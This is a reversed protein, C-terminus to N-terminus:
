ARSVIARNVAATVTCIYDQDLSSLADVESGATGIRVAYYIKVSDMKWRGLMIFLAAVAWMPPLVYWYLAVAAVLGAALVLLAFVYAVTVDSTDPEIARSSVSTINALAYTRGRIQVRKDSVFVEANEFFITEGSLGRKPQQPAPTVTPPPAAWADPPPPTGHPIGPVIDATGCKPCKVKQGIYQDPVTATHGCGACTLVPM